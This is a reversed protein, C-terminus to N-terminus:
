LFMVDNVPVSGSTVRSIDVSSDTAEVATGNGEDTVTTAKVDCVVCVVLAKSEIGVGNTRDSSDVLKVSIDSLRYSALLSVILGLSVVAMITDGPDHSVRGGLLLKCSSM